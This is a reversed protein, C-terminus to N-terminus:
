KKTINIKVDTGKYENIPLTKNYAKGNAKISLRDLQQTPDSYMIEILNGDKTIKYLGPTPMNLNLDDKLELICPEFVALWYIDNTSNWLIQAENDNKLIHYKSCDFQKLINENCEPIIAYCYSANQPSKGHDIYLTFLEGDVLDHKQMQMIDDLYGKSYTKEVICSDNNSWLVYGINNHLIKIEENSFLYKESCKVSKGIIKFEGKYWTQEINTTVSLTSDSTINSGMCIILSDEFIYTKNATLGNRNLQFTSIGRKSDSLGGAFKSKNKPYYSNMILPMPSEPNSHCTTGPLKRWDWIPFIDLYEDGKKYIYMAGDGMYYGKMNDGNLSEVGIVRDSSMKLSSMWRNRRCITYDSQWFHKVGIFNNKNSYCNTFFPKMSTKSNDLESVAFALSLAKHIPASVFLQRGLANIDMKGNWIIWQYGNNVLSSLINLHEETFAMSTNSFIGSLLSMTYIYALGYNGFQQQTGHQHFCWDTKIGERGGTTIEETIIDRAIRITDLNERLVSRMMVNAALWVKNQGTMGFKSNQMVKIAEDIEEKNMEDKFLIFATGLTRPIGIQNYYWNPCKLNSMFWYSMTKHIAEEVAVSKYHKTKKNKFAIVLELIREAHLRPEWGSRKKDKYNIDKWSGDNNINNLYRETREYSYPARQQLEMAVRDSVEYGPQNQELIDILGWEDSKENIYINYFNQRIVSIEDNTKAYSKFMIFSGILLLIYSKFCQKM